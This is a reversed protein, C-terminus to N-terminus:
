SLLPITLVTSVLQPKWGQYHVLFEHVGDTSRLELIKAPFTVIEIFGMGLFVM